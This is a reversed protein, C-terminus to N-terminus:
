LKQKEKTKLHKKLLTKSKNKINKIIKVYQHKFKNKFIKLDSIIKFIIVIEFL